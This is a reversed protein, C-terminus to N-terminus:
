RLGDTSCARSAAKFRSVSPLRRCISPLPTLIASAQTKLASTSSESPAPTLDRQGLRHAVCKESSLYTRGNVPQSLPPRFISDTAAVRNTSNLYLYSTPDLNLVGQTVKRTILSDMITTSLPAARM